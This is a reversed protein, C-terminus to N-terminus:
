VRKAHGLTSVCNVYGRQNVCCHFYKDTSLHTRQVMVYSYLTYACHERSVLTGIPLEMTVCTVNKLYQDWEFLAM